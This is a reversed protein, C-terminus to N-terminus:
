QIREVLLRATGKEDWTTVLLDGVLTTHPRNASDSVLTERSVITGDPSLVLRVLAGSDDPLLSGPQPGSPTTQRPSVDDRIRLNVVTYGSDLRVATAMAANTGDENVVASVSVPRWSPDFQILKVASTASPNLTESAFLLYGGVVPIASSGNGHTFKGGGINVEGTKSAQVDFHHVTHGYGPAFHAVGVGNPEAVMFMDNTPGNSHGVPVLVLRQFEKDIKVLYSASDGAVSFVIWHYEHAFIHWHDAIPIGGTDAPSAVTQWTIGVEPNSLDLRGMLLKGDAEASLAIQPAGDDIAFLWHKAEPITMPAQVPTINPAVATM